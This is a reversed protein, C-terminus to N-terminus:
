PDQLVRYFRTNVGATPDPVTIVGGTGYILTPTVLSNWSIPPNLSSARQLRYTHNTITSFSVETFAGAYRISTIRIGGMAASFESTDGTARDTATATFFQNSYTASATFAFEAFGNADSNVNVNNSIRFM